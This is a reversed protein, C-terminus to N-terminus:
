SSETLNSWPDTLSALPKVRVGEISFETDGNYIGIGPTVNRLGIRQFSRIGKLFDVSFTSGSNIEIPILNGAQRLVLDVETGHSDRYFYAEPRIGRNFAGKLIDSIVLNEFLCGRLPHNAAQASDRIGLLFAALGVDTFYLKSSRVLRKNINEHFPQLEYLVFSAFMVSLWNRITQFSIGVDNSLSSINTLQGIRSALM